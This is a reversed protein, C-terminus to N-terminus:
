AGGEADFYRKLDKIKTKLSKKRPAEWVGKAQAAERLVEAWRRREEGVANRFRAFYAEFKPSSWQRLDVRAREFADLAQQAKHREEQERRKEELERRRQEGPDAVPPRLGVRGYGASTKAGFGVERGAYEFATKVLERWRDGLGAPVFAWPRYEVPVSLEVGTGIALFGLPLPGMDDTPWEAEGRYWPAFHPTMVELHMGGPPLAPYVDHFVLAGRWRPVSRDTRESQLGRLWARVTEADVDRSGGTQEVIPVLWRLKDAELASVHQEYRARWAGIEERALSGQAVQPARLYAANEDLGFLLLVEVISWGSAGDGLLALEEAARRVAGCVGSGPLFPLGYPDLFRCGNENPHDEGLGTALPSHTWAQLSLVDSGRRSLAVTQRKRLAELARAAEPPVTLCQRLAQWRAEDGALEWTGSEWGEFYLRFRHGPPAESFKHGVYDPVAASM